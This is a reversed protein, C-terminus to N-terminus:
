RCADAATDTTTGDEAVFRSRWGGPALTLELVGFLNTRLTTTLPTGTHRHLANGGTGVVFQTVGREDPRGSPSRPGFREYNHVHGNLVLEARHEYLARFLPGTERHPQHAGGFGSSFRPHHWYALVCSGRRLGELQRRLWREQASGEACSVPWCDDPRSAGRGRRTYRVAGSNLALMTWDGLRWRYYGESRAGAVPGFYEFYGPAADRESTGQYEHNGPAPYTIDKFRGWTPDYEAQFEELTGEHDQADGLVAVADPNLREVLDATRAHRCHTPAEDMAPSCAIDGAAVLTPPEVSPRIRFRRRVSRGRVFVKIRLLGASRAPVRFAVRFGGRRGTRSRRVTRAGLAIRLPARKAFGHGAVVMRQGPEAGSRSLAVRPKALAPTAALAAVSVAAALQATSVSKM